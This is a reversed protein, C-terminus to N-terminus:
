TFVFLSETKLTLASKHLTFFFFEGGGEETDSM